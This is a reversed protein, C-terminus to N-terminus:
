SQWFSHILHASPGPWKAFGIIHLDWELSAFHLSNTQSVVSSGTPKPHGQQVGARLSCCGWAAIYSAERGIGTYGVETCVSSLLISGRPRQSLSSYSYRYYQYNLFTNTHCHKHPPWVAAQSFTPEGPTSSLDRSKIILGKNLRRM